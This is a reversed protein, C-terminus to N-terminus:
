NDREYSAINNATEEVDVRYCFPIRDCLWRAINEASPQFTLIENLDQHDLENVISKIVSFDVIMGNQDLSESKCHVKIIWNHGHLHQCPSGYDLKLKHSGSVEIVKTLYYM